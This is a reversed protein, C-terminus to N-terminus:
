IGDEMGEWGDFVSPEGSGMEGCCRRGTPVVGGHLKEGDGRGEQGGEGGGVWDEVLEHRGGGREVVLTRGGGGETLDGVEAGVRGFGFHVDVDGVLEGGGWGDDDGDVVAGAGRLGVVVARGVGAESVLLTEDDDVGLGGVGAGAPVDRRTGSQRM